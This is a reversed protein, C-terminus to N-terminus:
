LLDVIVKLLLLSLSVLIIPRIIRNGRWRVLRAGALNGAIGALAAPIGLLLWVKGAALFGILAAVNSALNVVKTNANATVFDCKLAVTFFLILFTGTGPGFFGDYFGIGLGAGAALLHRRLPPVQTLRSEGGLNKRSLTFVAIMPILAVLMIRLFGPDIWLVTRTGGYAGVLAMAAALGAVKRDIWGWRHYHWTALLTGFCSSFKNNGLAFHTPLGAALYAPLSILGGGGAIADILGGLFVGPLVIALVQFSIM